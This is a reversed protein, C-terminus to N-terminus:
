PRDDVLALNNVVQWLAALAEAVGARATPPLDEELLAKLGEYAALLRAESAELPRGLVDKASDSM